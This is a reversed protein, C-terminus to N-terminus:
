CGLILLANKGNSLRAEEDLDEEEACANLITDM